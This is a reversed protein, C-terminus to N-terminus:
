IDSVASHSKNLNLATKESYKDNNLDVEWLEKIRKLEIESILVLDTQKEVELLKQLIIKRGAMTFPGPGSMGNRRTDCRYLPNDRFEAIWNRFKLLENLESYGNDIMNSISKDSRVVTCVWCGFRSKGCPSGRNERFALCESEADQYINRITEYNLGQPQELNRLTGWVDELTHNLIPSFIMKSSSKGQKLFYQNNTIHRSITRNRQESEGSRIGLLINAHANGNIITNVPKIRLKDTCWRFINTPTPYGRGIVKVFFRDDLDPVVIHFQFPFSYKKSEIELNEFVTYVHKKIIPNEVGTDCFIVSVRKHFDSICLFANFVLKLLAPWIHDLRGAEAAIPLIITM